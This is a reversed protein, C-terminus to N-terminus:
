HGATMTSHEYMQVNASVDTSANMCEASITVKQNKGLIFSERFDFLCMKGLGSIGSAVVVGGTIGITNGGKYVEGSFENGSGRKLNSPTALTGSSEVAGGTEDLIARWKVDDTSTLRIVGLHTMEAHGHIEVVGRQAGATLAMFDTDYVYALGEESSAFQFTSTIARTKLQHAENVEAARGSRPDTINM